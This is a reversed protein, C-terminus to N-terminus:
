TKSGVQLHTVLWAIEAPSGVEITIKGKGKANLHIDVSAGLRESLVQEWEGKQHTLWPDMKVAQRERTASIMKEVARVSLNDRMIEQALNEQAFGTLALLARAHGMELKGTQLGEKAIPTLSLLRLLNTVASRSFGVTAAIGEHTLQFETQM